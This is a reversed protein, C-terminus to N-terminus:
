LWPDWLWGYTQSCSALKDKGRQLKDPQAPSGPTGTAKMLVGLLVPLKGRTGFYGIWRRSTKWCSTQTKLCCSPFAVNKLLHPHTLSWGLQGDTFQSPSHHAILLPQPSSGPVAWAKRTIFLVHFSPLFSHLLWAEGFEILQPLALPCRNRCHHKRYPVTLM